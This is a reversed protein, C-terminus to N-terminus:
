VFGGGSQRGARQDASDSSAERFRNRQTQDPINLGADSTVENIVERVVSWGGSGSYTLIATSTYHEPIIFSAAAGAIGLALAAKWVKLMTLLAALSGAMLGVGLGILAIQLRRPGEPHAPLNAPEKISFDTGDIFSAALSQAAGQAGAAEPAKVTISFMQRSGAVPSIRVDSEEMQQVLDEVPRTKLEEKILGGSYHAACALIKGINGSTSGASGSQYVM